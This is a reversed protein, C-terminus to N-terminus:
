EPSVSSRADGEHSDEDLVSEVNCKLMTTEQILRVAALMVPKGFALEREYYAQALELELFGHINYQRLAAEMGLEGSQELACKLWSGPTGGATGSWGFVMFYDCQGDSPLVADVAHLQLPDAPSQGVGVDKGIVSENKFGFNHEMM